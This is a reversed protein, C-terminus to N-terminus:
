MKTSFLNHITISSHGLPSIFCFFLSEVAKQNIRISKLTNLLNVESFLKSIVFCSPSKKFLTSELFFSWMSPFPLVIVHLHHFTWPTFNIEDSQYDQTWAVKYNTKWNRKGRNTKNFCLGERCIDFFFFFLVNKGSFVLTGNDYIQSDGYIYLINCIHLTFLMFWVDTPRGTSIVQNWTWLSPTRRVGLRNGLVENFPPSGINECRYKLNLIVARSLKSHLYKRHFYIKIQLKYCCESIFM